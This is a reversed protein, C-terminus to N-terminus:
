CKWHEAMGRAKMKSEKTKSTQENTQESGGFRFREARSGETRSGEARGGESRFGRMPGGRSPKGRSPFGRGCRCKAAAVTQWDMPRVSRGVASPKGPEQGSQRHVAAASQQEPERDSLHWARASQRGM